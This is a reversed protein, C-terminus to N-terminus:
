AFLVPLTSSTRTLKSGGFRGSSLYHPFRCHMEAAWMLSRRVQSCGCPACRVSSYSKAHGGGGTSATSGPTILGLARKWPLCRERPSTSSSESRAQLLSWLPLSGVTRELTFSDLPPDVLDFRFEQAGSCALWATSTIIHPHEESSTGSTSAEQPPPLWAMLVRM